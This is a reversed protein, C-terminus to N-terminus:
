CIYNGESVQFCCVKKGNEYIFSGDGACLLDEPKLKFGGHIKQQDLKNLTTGLNSIKKFM